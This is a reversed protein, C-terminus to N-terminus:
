FELLHFTNESGLWINNERVKGKKKETGSYVQVWLQIIMALTPDAALLHCREQSPHPCPYLYSCILGKYGEQHDLEPGQMSSDVLESQNVTLVSNGM